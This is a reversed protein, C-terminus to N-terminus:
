RALELVATDQLHKKLYSFTVTGYGGHGWNVGWSNKFTFVAEELKGSASSYGVLTVAHGNGVIPAQDALYGMRLARYSPWALGIVVPRGTNLVHVANNIRTFNDHGPLAYVFVREHTQAEAIVAAPPEDIQALSRGFTNPMSSQLPIGYARLAAVVEGLSFGEDADEDVGVSGGTSEAPSPRRTIKRTAWSLYEESFKEAEGKSEGNQFELASVLAFVSCSPRRGQNKVGIKLSFFTPRLDVNPLVTAPEGFKPLASGSTATGLARPQKSARAPVDIKAAKPLSTMAAEAAPDYGFQQQWEPSLERLLISSMGGAHVIIATRANVSRVEVQRFVTGGVPLADLKAGAALQASAAMSVSGTTTFLILALSAILLFRM